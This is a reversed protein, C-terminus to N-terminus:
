RRANVRFPRVDSGLVWRAMGRRSGSVILVGIADDPGHFMPSEVYSPVCSLVTAHTGAAALAAHPLMAQAEDFSAAYYQRLRARSDWILVAPDDTGGYLVVQQGRHLRCDGWAPSTAALCWILLAVAAKRM